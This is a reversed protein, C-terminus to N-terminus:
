GEWEGEPERRVSGSAGSTTADGSGVARASERRRPGPRAPESVSPQPPSSAPRRRGGAARAARRGDSGDASRVRRRRRASTGSGPPTDQDDMLTDPPEPRVADIATASDAPETPEPTQAPTHEAREARLCRRISEPDLGENCAQHLLRAFLYDPDAGLAMALAERAELEDGASWAVW